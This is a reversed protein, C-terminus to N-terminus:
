PDAGPSLTFVIPTKETSM